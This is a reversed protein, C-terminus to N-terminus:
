GDLIGRALRLYKEHMLRAASAGAKRSIADFHTGPHDRHFLAAAIMQVYKGQVPDRVPECPQNDNATDFLQDIHRRTLHTLRDPLRFAFCSV